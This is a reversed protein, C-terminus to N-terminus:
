FGEGNKLAEDRVRNATAADVYPEQRDVSWYRLDRLPIAEGTVACRVFGGARLVEFDADLYRLKAEGGGSLDLSNM